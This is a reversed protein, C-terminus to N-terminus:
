KAQSIKTSLLEIFNTGPAVLNLCCHHRCKSNNVPDSTVYWWLSVSCPTFVTMLIGKDAPCFGASTFAPVIFLRVLQHGRLDKQIMWSVHGSHWCFLNIIGPQFVTFSFFCQISVFMQRHFNIIKNMTSFLKWNRVQFQLFNNHIFRCSICM